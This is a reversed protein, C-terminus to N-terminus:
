KIFKNSNLIENPIEIDDKFKLGLDYIEKRNTNIDNVIIDDTFKPFGHLLENGIKCDKPKIINGEIDLLSHDETVDVIGSDTVIRYIRKYTKHRM